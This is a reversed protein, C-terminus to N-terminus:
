SAHIVPEVIITVNQQFESEKARISYGHGTTNAISQMAVLLHHGQEIEYKGDPLLKLTIM